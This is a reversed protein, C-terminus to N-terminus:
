RTQDRRPRLWHGQAPLSIGLKVCHKRLAVDSVGIGKAAHVLPKEWVLKTLMKKDPWNIRPKSPLDIKPKKALLKAPTLEWFAKVKKEDDISNRYHLNMMQISTGCNYATLSENKDRETQYSISTHRVIDQVWKAAKTAKKLQKMKYKWGTPQGTFPHVKLWEALVPPIPATRKLKRRLKGGSVRIVTEGIDGSTLHEIESPRLGAFLGIAVPAAAVGGQYTMAAYLLRSVEDLSLISIQTMDRPLKDLRKCPDELCYHHRVAWNFFTSFARRYTDKSNLNKYGALLKEIDSLVFKHVPKNPDPRVLLRLASQYHAKTVPSGVTRHETFEKYANFITITKIESRYHAEAFALAEELSIGKAKMRAELSSYHSVVKSLKRGGSHLIAAESDSIEEVSLRTRQVKTAIAAGAFAAEQDAQEQIADSKESFNKRVRTGDIKTGTVRWSESGAANRFPQLKFHQIKKPRPVTRKQCSTQCSGLYKREM